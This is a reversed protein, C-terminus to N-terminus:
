PTDIFSIGAIGIAATGRLRRAHADDIGGLAYVPIPCARTLTAFRLVGLAPQGPHSQTAFVPALLAADAGIRVANQLARASHCACTVIFGPKRARIRTVLGDRGAMWEPVHLGDAGVALALAPDAAIILKLRRLRCATALAQALAFRATSKQDETYHRLIIGAGPPLRDLAALPDKLRAEDTMLFLPPLPHGSRDHARNQLRAHLNLARATNTITM